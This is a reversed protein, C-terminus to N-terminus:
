LILCDLVVWIQHMLTLIEGQYPLFRVLVVLLVALPLAVMALWSITAMPLNAIRWGDLGTQAFAFPFILHRYSQRHTEVPIRAIEENFLRLKPTLLDLQILLTLHLFLLIPPALAFSSVLPLSIGVQPITMAGERLLAEHDAALCAAGLYIMVILLTTMATRATRASDNISAILQELYGDARPTGGGQAYTGNAM